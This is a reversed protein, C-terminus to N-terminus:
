KSTPQTENTGSPGRPSQLLITSELLVDVEDKRWDQSEVHTAELDGRHKKYAMKFSSVTVSNKIDTAVKNM